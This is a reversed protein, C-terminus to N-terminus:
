FPTDITYSTIVIITIIIKAATANLPECSVIPLAPNEPYVVSISETLVDNKVSPTVFKIPESAALFM